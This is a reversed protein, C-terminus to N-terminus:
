AGVARSAGGTSERISLRWPVSVDVPEVRSGNRAADIRRILLRLSERALVDMDPAITTISPTTYSSEPINDFGAVAVDSPVRLGAEHCARVAGVAMADNFCFVADPPEALSNLRNMAEHGSGRSYDPVDIVLDRDFPLGASELAQRYGELRVSSTGQSPVHGIAGIRRHDTAILHETIRRAAPVSEVAVHDYGPPVAREGLLVVPVDARWDAIEQAELSLPSFIMGDILRASVGSMVMREADPDAGTIDLLAVYGLREAEAWIKSTLEAFYPTRLEPVALGIFGSRGSKLNRAALNPRYDLEQIAKQVRQRTAPRVHPNNNVVNSVTKVSVGARLAVDKLRAAMAERYM